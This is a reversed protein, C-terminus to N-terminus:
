SLPTPPVRGAPVCSRGEVARLTSPCRPSRPPARLCRAVALVRLCAVARSECYGSDALSLYPEVVGNDVLYQRLSRPDADATEADREGLTQLLRNCLRFGPEAADFRILRQERSLFYYGCGGDPARRKSPGGDGHSWTFIQRRGWNFDQMHPPPPPPTLRAHVRVCARRATRAASAVRRDGGGARVECLESPGNLDGHIFEAGCEVERGPLFTHDQKVRGGIIPRAELVVACPAAPLRPRPPTLSLVPPRRRLRCASRAPLAAGGLWWRARGWWERTQFKYTKQIESAARLGSVGAGVVVVDVYTEARPHVTAPEM